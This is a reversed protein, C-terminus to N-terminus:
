KNLKYSQSTLPSCMVNSNAVVVTLFNTRQMHSGKLDYNTSYKTKTSKTVLRSNEYEKVTVQFCM